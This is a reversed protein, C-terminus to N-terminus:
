VSMVAKTKQGSMQRRWDKTTMWTRFSDLFYCEISYFGCESSSM